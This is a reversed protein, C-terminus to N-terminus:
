SAIFLTLAFPWERDLWQKEPRFGANAGLALLEQPDYRYSSETWITEGKKFRVEADLGAIYVTQNVLSRLHMEIRREVTNYLALHEFASLRFDGGLEQNIRRLVNLNFDATVGASDDYASVLQAAPKELDASLLFLDGAVLTERVGRLFDLADARHFNGITGGLFLVLLREGPMRHQLVQRIGPFYESEIPFATVQPLSEVQQACMDLAAPSIDIPYYTTRQFRSLAELLVTTKNGDGSGLETVILPKPFRRAMEVAHREILRRDARTLGYEPLTTIREFLGSGRQDYLYKAPLSKQDAECLGSRVDQAFQSTSLTSPTPALMARSM